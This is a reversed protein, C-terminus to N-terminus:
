NTADSQRFINNISTKLLQRKEPANEDDNIVQILRNYYNEKNPNYPKDGITKLKPCNDFCFDLNFTFSQTFQSLDLHFIDKGITHL